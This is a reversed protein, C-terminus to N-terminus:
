PATLGAPSALANGPTVPFDSSTTGGLLYVSGEADVTVAGAVETASAHITKTYAVESGNPGVKILLAASGINGAIYINGPADSAIATPVFGQKLYSSYALLPTAVDESRAVLPLFAILTLIRSLM